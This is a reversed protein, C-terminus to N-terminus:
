GPQTSVKTLHAWWCRSRAISFCVHRRNVASSIVLKVGCLGRKLLKKLFTAWFTEAKSPGLHLDVIECRGYSHVAVAVIVAISVIRGGERVMLYTADLWLYPWEGAQPRELFAKGREDWGMRCAM